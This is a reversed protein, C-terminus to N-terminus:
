GALLACIDEQKGSLTFSTAVPNVLPPRHEFVFEARGTTFFLPPVNLGLSRSVPGASWWNNGEGVSTGTGDPHTVTKTPGSVHRVITEGTDTNTFSLVLNGTVETITTGDALTRVNQYENNLVAAVYVPFGCYKAAPYTGPDFPLPERDQASAAPTLAAFATIAALIGVFIARRM